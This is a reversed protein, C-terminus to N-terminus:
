IIMISQRCHNYVPQVNVIPKRSVQLIGPYTFTKFHKYMFDSGLRPKGYPRKVKSGYFTFYYLITMLLRYMLKSRHCGTSVLFGKRSGVILAYEAWM